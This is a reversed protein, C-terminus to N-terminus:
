HSSASRWRQTQCTGRQTPFVSAPWKPSCEAHCFSLRGLRRMYREPSHCSKGVDHLVAGVLVLRVDCAIGLSRLEVSLLEATEAVTQAYHILRTTAGLESLLSLAEKRDKLM